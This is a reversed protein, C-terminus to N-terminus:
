HTKPLKEARSDHETSKPRCASKRVVEIIRAHHTGHLALCNHPVSESEKMTEFDFLHYGQGLLHARVLDQNTDCEFFIAPSYRKITADAGSFVQLEAGEVDIKIFDPPLSVDNAVGDLTVCAVTVTTPTTDHHRVIFSSDGTNLTGTAGTVEDLQFNINGTVDSVAAEILRVSKISSRAITAKILRINAQDPEFMLVSADKVASAFLFGYLGINAGVDWLTKFSGIGVINLFNTREAEEGARGNSLVWSLNKSLSVYVPHNIGDFHIGIPRDFFKSAQRFLRLKRLHFLPHFRERIRLVLKTLM